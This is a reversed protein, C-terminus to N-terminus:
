RGVVVVGFTDPKVTRKPRQSPDSSPTVVVEATPLFIKKTNPDFAMTKAGTQTKVAGLDEYEDASKQRFVGLTGDGSSTFVLKGEPDFSAWDVGAGIPFSAVVSGSAADMVVMLPKERCGIFLRNTKADYALGTPTGAVKIPLRRKVELTNPDFAAVEGKDELNVYVLGDKGTVMAEGAGEVKVTGAVEAKAADIATIDDSGHNCTFVRNTGAHYYIGDPGKGVDIKKILALTEPDFVSVKNERGNTTFGHKSSAAIAIGHVGPTDPIVGIRKGSDADIVDVQTGHSLYLRRAASDLTIYDWGGDGGVQYHGTVRYPNDAGAAASLCLVFCALTRMFSEKM